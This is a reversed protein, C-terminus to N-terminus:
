CLLSFYKNEHRWCFLCACSFTEQPETGFIPSITYRDHKLLLYWLCGSYIDCWGSWIMQYSQFPGEEWVWGGREWGTHHSGRWLLSYLEGVYGKCDNWPSQNMVVVGRWETLRHWKMPQNLNLFRYWWILPVRQFRAQFQNWNRVNSAVTHGSPITLRPIVNM